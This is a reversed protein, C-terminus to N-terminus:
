NKGNLKQEFTYKLISVASVAATDCKLLISGLSIPFAGAILFADEEGPSFGGEPGILVLIPKSVSLLEKFPDPEFVAEPSMLFVRAYSSFTKTLSEVTEWGSVEMLFNNRSQKAGELILLHLRELLKAFSSRKFEFVARESKLLIVKSVALEESKQIIEDLKNKHPVAQALHIELPYRKESTLSGAELRVAKKDVQVFRGRAFSGKGDFLEAEDGIKFRLVSRAHHAEREDLEILSREKLQPCYFRRLM